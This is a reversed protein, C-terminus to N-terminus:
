EEEEQNMFETLAEEITMYTVNTGDELKARRYPATPLEAVVVYKHKEEAKTKAEEAIEQMPNEEPVEEVVEVKKFKDEKKKKKGFAM